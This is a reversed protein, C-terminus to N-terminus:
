EVRATRPGHPLRGSRCGRRPRAGRRSRTGPKASLEAPLPALRGGSAVLADGALMAPASGNSLIALRGARLGRMGWSTTMSLTEAAGLLGELADIRVMGARKFAAHFVDSPRMLEGALTAARGPMAAGCVPRLVVVPKVRSLVRAASMFRRSDTVGCLYLLVGRTERDAALFDMLDGIDADTTEGLSVVRSFGIRRPASWDILTTAISDSQTLLALPGPEPLRPFAGANLGIGPVMVGVRAPGFVRVGARRAARRIAESEARGAETELVAPGVLVIARCGKAALFEVTAAGYPQPLSVVALDVGDPLADPTVVTGPAEPSIEGANLTYLEGKFAASALNAAVARDWTFDGGLAPVFAIRQPSFLRAIQELKM